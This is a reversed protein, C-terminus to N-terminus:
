RDGGEDGRFRGVSALHFVPAPRGALDQVGPPAGDAAGHSEVIDGERGGPVHERPSFFHQEAGHGDPTSPQKVSNRVPGDGAALVIRAVVLQLGIIGSEPLRREQLHEQRLRHEQSEDRQRKSQWEPQTLSRQINRRLHSSGQASSTDRQERSSKGELRHGILLQLQVTLLSRIQTTMTDPAYHSMRLSDVRGMLIVKFKVLM